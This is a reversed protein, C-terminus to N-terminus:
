EERLGLCVAVDYIFRGRRRYYTKINMFLSLRSRDYGVGCVVDEIMTRAVRHEMNKKAEDMALQVRLGLETHIGERRQRETEAIMAKVCAVTERPLAIDKYMRKRGM